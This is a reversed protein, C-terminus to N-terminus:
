RIVEEVTEYWKRSEGVRARLKWRTGKPEAELTKLFGELRLKVKQKEEETIEYDNLHELINQTSM